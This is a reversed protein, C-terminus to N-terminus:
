SGHVKVDDIGVTVVVPGDPEYFLVRVVEVLVLLGEAHEFGIREVRGQVKVAQVTGQRIQIGDGYAEIEPEQELEEFCLAGNHRHIYPHMTVNILTV